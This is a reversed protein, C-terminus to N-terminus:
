KRLDQIIKQDFPKISSAYYGILEGRNNVLYKCFNWTPTGQHWGNQTSDSLWAYVPHQKNGKVSVKEFMTFSVGYNKKCFEVIDENSGPDQNAFDNSPFGLVIVSDQYQEHFKQLDEFQGTFGCKSATNVILVRKGKFSDFHVVEGQMNIASLNYFSEQSLNESEPQQKVEGFRACGTILLLSVVIKKM